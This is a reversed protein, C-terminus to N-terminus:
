TGITSQASPYVYVEYSYISVDAANFSLRWEFRRAKIMKRHALLVPKNFTTITVTKSTIWTAGNDKSYELLLDTTRSAQYEINIKAVNEDVEPLAFTKSVLITDFTPPDVLDDHEADTDADEDEVAISGDSRGYTYPIAILVEESLDDIATDGLSDISGLLDDITTVASAVEVNAASTVGYFEGQVWTKTDFNFKWERTVNDALPIFISYENPKSSFASFVDVPKDIERFLERKNPFSLPQPQSGVSYYYVEQTRTDVWCVGGKVVQISYSCDGGIGPAAAYFYFPNSPVPQKTGMWVSKERLIFIANNLAVGGKIWDSLDDPSDLIPSAGATPDVLSSWEESDGDGSWGVETEAEDRRALGVARNFIGVVYRYNPANGLPGCTNLSLNVLQLPDAGNNAFIFKDLVDTTQFRDNLTGNLAPTIAINTWSTATRIYLSSPTMRITYPSGDQTKIFALKIVPNGDPKPPDLLITGLRRTTRDDRIIVNRALQLAGNPIDASDIQTIMGLNVRAEVLKRMDLNPPNLGRISVPPVGKFYPRM